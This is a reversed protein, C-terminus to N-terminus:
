TRSGPNLAFVCRDREKGPALDKNNSNVSELKWLVKEGKMEEEEGDRYEHTNSYAVAAFHSLILM